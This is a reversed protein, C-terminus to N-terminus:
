GNMACDPADDDAVRDTTPAAGRARIQEAVTPSVWTSLGVRAPRGGERPETVLNLIEALDPHEATTANSIRIDDTRFIQAGVDLQGRCQEVFEATLDTYALSFRSRGTPKVMRALHTEPHGAARRIVNIAHPRTGEFSALYDIPDAALCIAQIRIEDQNTARTARVGIPWVVHGRDLMSGDPAMIATRTKRAIIEAQRDDPQDLCRVLDPRDLIIRYEELLAKLVAPRQKTVLTPMEGLEDIVTEGPAGAIPQIQTTSQIAVRGDGDVKLVHRDVFPWCGGLMEAAEGVTSPSSPAYAILRSKADRVIRVPAAGTESEVLQVIAPVLNRHADLGLSTWVGALLVDRAREFEPTGPAPAGLGRNGARWLRASARAAAEVEAESRGTRADLVASRLWEIAPADEAAESRLLDRVSIVIAAYDLYAERQSRSDLYFDLDRSDIADIVIHGTEGHQSSHNLPVELKTRRQRYEFSRRDYVEREIEIDVVLDAGSRRVTALSIPEAPRAKWNKRHTRSDYRVVHPAIEPTILRHTFAVVRSGPRLGAAQQRVYDQWAPRNPGILSQDDMILRFRDQQFGPDAFNSYGSGEMVPGFIGLRDHLGWMMILFREYMLAMRRFEEVAGAYELDDLGIVRDPDGRYWSRKKYPADIDDPTPFLRPSSSLFDPLAVYWVRGGDRVLMFTREDEQERLVRDIVAGIDGPATLREKKRRRPQMLVAARPAGFIRQVLAPDNRLREFLTGVDEFDAGGDLLHILLEEDLYLKRQFLHLPADAGASAGDIILEAAVNTGAYLGITDVQEMIRGAVAQVPKISAAAAIGREEYYASLRTSRVQMQEASATIEASIRSITVSQQELSERMRVAVEQRDEADVEDGAGLLGAPGTPVSAAIQQLDQQRTQIDAQIEGIEYGLAAIERDRSALAEAETVPEFETVLEDYLMEWSRASRDRRIDEDSRSAPTDRLHITHPAGHAYEVDTCLMISGAPITGDYLTQVDHQARWWSGPRVSIAAREERVHPTTGRVAPLNDSM